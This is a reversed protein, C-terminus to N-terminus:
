RKTRRVFGVDNALESSASLEGGEPDFVWTANRRRGRSVFRVTVRWRGDKRRSSEWM